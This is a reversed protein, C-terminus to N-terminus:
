SVVTEKAKSTMKPQKSRPAMSVTLEANVERIVGQLQKEAQRKTAGRLDGTSQRIPTSPPPYHLIYIVTILLKFSRFVRREIQLTHTYASNIKPPFKSGRPDPKFM